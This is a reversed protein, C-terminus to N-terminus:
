HIFRTTKLYNIRYSYKKTNTKVRIFELPNAQQLKVNFNNLLKALDAM